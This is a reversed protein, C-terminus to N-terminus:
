ETSPAPHAARYDKLRIQVEDYLAAPVINDRLLPALEASLKEWEARQAPSLGHVTTRPGRRLVTMADDDFRRGETRFAAGTTECLAMLRTRTAAPISEWADRRIVLAGIIPVWNMDLVHSAVTHIQGGLAFVPPVPAADIMGAAFGTHINETELAVPQFRLRKMVEVHPEDGAWTFLKMRRFDDPTLGPRRSFFKVWGADGWCLVVFGKAALRAELGHRLRDRIFDVEAWNHFTLPLNQLVSADPDIEGLGVATLLAAQYNGSRLKKVIGAEGDTQGGPARRLIVAGGSANKWDQALQTLILDQGVDRPLITALRVVVPDAAPAAPALLLLLIALSPSIRPNM